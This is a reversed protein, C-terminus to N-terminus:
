KQDQDVMQQQKNIFDQAADYGKTHLIHNRVATEVAVALNRGPAVPITIETIDIGLVKCIDQCGKLRDIKTLQEDSMRELRIVLRLYKSPKISSDGFMARINLLGLGRVELFERLLKPCSGSILDPAIRTFVPTDDAILRHGRSILELALESKGTNSAGALLVGTGMVEMFVGHLSIKEALLSRLFYRLNSILKHSEQPSTFLPTHYRDALQRMEDPVTQQDAIIVIGENNNFLQNLADSKSNKGLNGLYELETVGVIQITNPHILNLHGLLSKGNQEPHASKIERDEGSTGASWDLKIKDHLLDFFERITITNIM